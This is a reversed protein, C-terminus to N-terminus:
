ICNDEGLQVFSNAYIQTWESPDTAKDSYNGPALYVVVNNMGSWLQVRLSKITIDQASALDFM